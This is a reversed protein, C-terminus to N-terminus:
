RPTIEEFVMKLQLGFPWVIDLHSKFSIKITISFHTLGFCSFCFVRPTPLYGYQPDNLPAVYKARLNRHNASLLGRECM